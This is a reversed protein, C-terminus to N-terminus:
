LSVIISFAAIVEGNSNSATAHYQGDDISLCAPIILAHTGTEDDDFFSVRDSEEILKSDKFWKV